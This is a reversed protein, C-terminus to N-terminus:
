CGQDLLLLDVDLVTLQIQAEDRSFAFRDDRRDLDELRGLLRELRHHYLGGRRGASEGPAPSKM